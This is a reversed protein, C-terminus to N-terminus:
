FDAGLSFYYKPTSFGSGHYAWAVDMKLPLGLFWMRFGVGTGALLDQPIIRGEQDRGYGKFSGIEDNAAGVDLFVAGNVTQLIYPLVGGLFYKVLPFRMEVNGLAYKTAIRANYNYGRLPLVATLFAFDEVDKIPIYGGEFTRNMWNETGGIFFRQPNRGFSGGAAGRLVLSFDDLFKFYTRYDLMVSAFRISSGGLGPSGFGRLEYRTGRVPSWTGWLSNDHVYAINPMLIFRDVKPVTPNDLNEQSINMLTMSGELRNFRDLPYSLSLGGGYQRYRYLESTFEDGSFIFRASHFGELGWDLRGPLYFYALAYDSNKLDGLLNTLFIIQHNGLMDSFAMTTTGLVGYFTSYGANGYVLDPTFSLKYRNVIFQGREDKNNHLSFADDHPRANVTDVGDSSFLLRGGSVTTATDSGRAQQGLVVSFENAYTKSEARLTDTEGPSRSSDRAALAAERALRRIYETPELPSLKPLEFPSKLLFVDFGAEYMSAFSLKKGDASLSMQYVGSASNTVPYEEGTTLDRIYINGIGSKDSIFLMRKGDPGVIPNAESAAPTNTWRTIAGSEVDISYIDMQSYDHAFMDFSAPLRSPDTNAQRDSTFYIRAGDPSWAPSADSFIDNTLNRSQRTTLDYIWVDSQLNNNGIFAIRDASPSWQVTFIGDMNVPIMTRDGSEVDIINIADHEGAKSSIALKKGDPSWSMGPTILHLEEFDSTTQGEILQTVGSGDQSSMLYVSFFDDRDSIFAIRDGSPSIAPSTNYFNRLKTHNTLRKAFDEPSTMKAIDPWYLVKQEKIWRESLEDVTLGISSKFGQDLSRTSRIRNLIEGVKQKGYKESIYWWVSQGGRYAFYGDLYRIPPLYNSTSADRIFMDSNTDWGGRAEYEALGENFWGPLQLRVANAIMSQISGGYFMDNLVAHVLEHHIVDRFMRYSGEFPIVVRNKFLETVGGIGEEMYTAVVNTQQFDNHSNYVVFPIRNTIRYRFEESISELAQEAARATFSALHEGGDTFYVDFHDSQIYYWNFKDYQVKNKGFAQAWSCAPAVLSLMLVIGLFSRTLLPMHFSITRIVKNYIVFIVYPLM